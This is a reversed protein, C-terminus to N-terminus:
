SSGNKEIKKLGENEIRFAISRGEPLFRHKRLIATRFGSHVCLEILCKSGYKLIDGGVMNTRTRDEFNAYVQNSIIVPIKYKRAIETLYAIQFGLERNVKYVDDSKGMELRYLMSITDVIIAGIEESMLRDLKEFANRQEDFTHPTLFIIRKLVDPTNEPAIQKMREVSFGGETDIFIVKKGSRVVSLAFLQCINTKGSGAPGYLTTIIDREFGGQLLEDM